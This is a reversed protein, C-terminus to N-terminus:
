KKTEKPNTINQVYRYYKYQEVENRDIEIVDGEKYNYYKSIPDFLSLKPLKLLDSVNYKLKINEIEQENLKKFKPQYIHYAIPFYLEKKSFIQINVRFRVNFVEKKADKSWDDSIIIADNIEDKELINLVFRMYDKNVDDNIFVYIYEETENNQYQLYDPFEKYKKKYEKKTLKDDDNVEYNRDRLMIALTNFVVYDM